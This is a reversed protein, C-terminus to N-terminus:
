YLGISMDIYTVLAGVIGEGVGLVLGEGFGFFRFFDVFFLFFRRGCFFEGMKKNM